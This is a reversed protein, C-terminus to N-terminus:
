APLELTAKLTLIRERLHHEAADSPDGEGRARHWRLMALDLQAARLRTTTRYAGAGDRRLANVRERFRRAPHLLIRNESWLVAGAGTGAEAQLEVELASAQNRLGRRLLVLYMVIFPGQLALVQLPLLVMAVVSASLDFWSAQHARLYVLFFNNAFHASIAIIFGCLIVARRRNRSHLQLGVGFGAGVLASFALHAGFLGVSQRAWHQFAGGQVMYGITETFNFGIGVAAGIVIGSVVDDLRRRYLIFLIAIGAGKCLEEVIGAYLAGGTTVAPWVGLLDPALTQYWLSAYGAFGTALLAGWAFGAAVIRFPMRRHRQMRHVTWLAFATPPVCALAQPLNKAVVGLSSWIVPLVLVAASVADGVLRARARRREESAVRRYAWTLTGVLLWGAWSALVREVQHELPGPVEASRYEALFRGVVSVFGVVASVLAVVALADASPTRGSGSADRPRDLDLPRGVAWSTAPTAPTTTM